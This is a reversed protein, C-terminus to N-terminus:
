RTGDAAAQMRGKGKQLHRFINELVVISNDVLMGVSIAFGLVTVINLSLGLGSFFNFTVLISIPIALSIILLSRWDRLFVFLILVALAIGAVALKKLRTIDKEIYEAADFTIRLRMGEPLLVANLEEIKERVRRAVQILNSEEDKQLYIAVSNM